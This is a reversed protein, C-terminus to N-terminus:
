RHRTSRTPSSTGTQVCLASGSGPTNNLWPQWSASGTSPTTLWVQADTGAKECAAKDPFPGIQVPGAVLMLILMYTMVERRQLAPAPAPNVLLAEPVPSPVFECRAPAAISFITPRKRSRSMTIKTLTSKQTAEGVVELTRIDDINVIILGGDLATAFKFQAM